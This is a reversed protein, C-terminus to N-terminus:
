NKSSTVDKIEDEYIKVILVFGILNIFISINGNMSSIIMEIVWIIMMIKTMKINFNVNINKMLNM